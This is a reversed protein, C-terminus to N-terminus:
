MNFPNELSTHFCGNVYFFFNGRKKYDSYLLFRKAFRYPDIFFKVFLFFLETLISVLSFTLVRPKIM